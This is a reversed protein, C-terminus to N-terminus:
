LPLQGRRGSIGIIKSTEATTKGEATWLLVERERPSIHCTTEPVNKPLWHQGMAAHTLNALYILRLEIADLEPLAIAKDPRSFSLLGVTSGQGRTPMGWGASVGHMRADEWFDRAESFVAEDWVLPTTSSLAHSVTPDIAIYNESVYRERWREPYNNFLGTAPKTLSSNCQIGFACYDFGLSCSIKTATEMVQSESKANNIRDIFDVRWNM